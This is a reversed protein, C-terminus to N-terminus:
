TMITGSESDHCLLILSVFSDTMLCSQYLLGQPMMRKAPWFISPREMGGLNLSSQRFTEAPQDKFILAHHLTFRAVLLAGM